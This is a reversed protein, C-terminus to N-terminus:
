NKGKETLKLEKHWIPEYGRSHYLDVLWKLQKENLGLVDKYEGELCLKIKEKASLEKADFM